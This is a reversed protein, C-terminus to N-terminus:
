AHAYQRWGSNLKFWGKAFPQMQKNHIANGMRPIQDDNQLIETRQLKQTKVTSDHCKHLQTRFILSAFPTVELTLWMHLFWFFFQMLPSTTLVNVKCDFRNQTQRCELSCAKLLM